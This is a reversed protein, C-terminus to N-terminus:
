RIYFFLSKCNTDSRKDSQQAELKTVKAELTKLQAQLNAVINLLQDDKCYNDGDTTPQGGVIMFVAAISYVFLLFPCGSVPM